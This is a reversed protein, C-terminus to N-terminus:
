SLMELRKPYAQKPYIEQVWNPLEWFPVPEPGELIKDTQEKELILNRLLALDALRPHTQGM